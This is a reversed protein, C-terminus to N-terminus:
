DEWSTFFSSMFCKGRVSSCEPLCIPEEGDWGCRLPQAGPGGYMRLGVWVQEPTLAM